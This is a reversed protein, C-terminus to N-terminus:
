GRNSARFSLKDDGKEHNISIIRDADIVQADGCEPCAVTVTATPKDLDREAVIM